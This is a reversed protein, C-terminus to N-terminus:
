ALQDLLAKADQLVPTDFGETFWGYVPALLDRAETRKGQDRWLCALSASARLECIRASQQRAVALAKGLCREAAKLNGESRLLEGKRRHLEAECWREQTTEILHLAEDLRELASARHGQRELVVALLMLYLPVARLLEKARFDSLAETLLAAGGQVQGLESLCWDRFYQGHRVGDFGLAILEEAHQLVVHTPEIEWELCLVSMLAGSLTYSTSHRAESLAQNMKLRAQDPYGLYFLTRSLVMLAMVRGDYLLRRSVPVPDFLMLCQDSNTRCEVFEARDLCTIALYSSGIFRLAIDNRANGFLTVESAIKHAAELEGRWVHHWFLPVMPAFHSPRDLIEWFYRAREYAERVAPAAPGLTTLLASALTIQLTLEHQHRWTGDAMSALLASAKNLQSVAETMSLRVVSQKGAKLWYEIAKESLGGETFHYALLDPQREAANPFVEELKTGIRAHLETRTERLLTGYAADRVLAHKFLFTAHPPTGEHFLLGANTLSELSTTLEKEALGAVAPLLEYSFERGIAAAMRAVDKAPGLRDLRAMLSAHLTAPITHPFSPVSAVWERAAHTTEAEIAANTVEEVFLPVGDTRLVIERLVDGPLTRNGSIRQVLDATAKASLRSLALLTVHPQGVWSAQFESRFTVLALVPLDRIRDIMRGLVDLSTPDIWHLDEFIALVPKERAMADLRRMIADITRKRREQPSLDLKPHRGDSTLSLLAAFIARDEISASTQALLVDLKDLKTASDDHPGFGAARELRQIIPYFASDTHHPSCLYRVRTCPETGIRELVAAALRSKGIGPEGSILVIQGEGEKARHWRRLLLETEEERGVFATLTSSHLAEFRSEVTSEGVIRLTRVPKPLGKIEVMGLDSYEFLDGVLRRTSEAIVIAGPEALAQLRAALNPTEGVVGREQAEGSGILDGVVVLGTAIGVRVQLPVAVATKLTPVAEVLALGARVAREADHEHAQPYGFYTLVGDGMYKAVFGGNREILETCCRHYTGIIGRLDEPDLTASLATSGVLDCFMVTLHRREAADEPKTMPAAATEPPAPATAPLRAIAAQLKRRHGLLVGLDKLDQDSLHGLASFDIGNEAFRQVYEGLGLGALWEAISQM